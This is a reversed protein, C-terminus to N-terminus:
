TAEDHQAAARRSQASSMPDPEPPRPADDDAALNWGGNIYTERKHDTDTLTIVTTTAMALLKARNPQM